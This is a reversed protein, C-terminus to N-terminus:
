GCSHLHIGECAQTRIQTQTSHPPKWKLLAELDIFCLSSQDAAQQEVLLLNRSQESRSGAEQRLRDKRKMRLGGGGETVWNVCRDNM